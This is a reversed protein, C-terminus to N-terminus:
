QFDACISAVFYKDDEQYIRFDPFNNFQRMIKAVDKNMIIHWGEGYEYLPSNDWTRVEPTPQSFFVEISKLSDIQYIELRLKEPIYKELFIPQFNFIIEFVQWIPDSHPKDYDLYYRKGSIILENQGTSYDKEPRELLGTNSISTLLTNIEDKLLIAHKYGNRLMILEGDEYLIFTPQGAGQLCISLEHGGDQYYTSSILIQKQPAVTPTPLLLINPTSTPALITNTPNSFTSSPTSDFLNTSTPTSLNTSKCSAIIVVTVFSIITLKKM